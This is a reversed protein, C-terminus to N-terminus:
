PISLWIDLSSATGPLEDFWRVGEQVLTIRLRYEGPDRPAAVKLEYIESKGPDISPVLPTRLGELVATNGDSDIWRYSLQIPAPDYFGLRQSTENVVECQVLLYGDLLPASVRANTLNVQACASATLPEMRPPKRLAYLEAELTAVKKVMARYYESLDSEVTSLPITMVKRYLSGYEVVLRSLPSHSRIYDSVQRADAPNYRALEVAIRRTQIPSQLTRMGFNWNRLEAVEASTVMPGLGAEDCLIVANGVAMAELACRAKAFVIDYNPLADEPRDLLNGVGSGIVDLPLNIEQCAARIAPLYNDDRAYNSFVVARQPRDPLPPRQRFRAINVSNFIVSTKERPIGCDVTLRELCNHDVAVYHQIRDTLPPTAQWALRAHCVFIGRAQPFAMLAQITELHQNGHVIDPPFPVDRLNDVVTVGGARIEEAVTGPRPTYIMPLVGLAALRLALDRTVLEAGFRTNLMDNTILVRPGSM